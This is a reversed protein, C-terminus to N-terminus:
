SLFTNMSMNAITITAIVQYYNYSVCADFIITLKETYSVRPNYLKYNKGIIQFTPEGLTICFM